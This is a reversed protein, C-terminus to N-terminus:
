IKPLKLNSNLLSRIPLFVTSVIFLDLHGEIERVKARKLGLIVNRESQIMKRLLAFFSLWDPKHDQLVWSSWRFISIYKLDWIWLPLDQKSRWFLTFMCLSMQIYPGIKIQRKKFGEMLLKLLLWLIRQAHLPQNPLSSRLTNTNLVFFYILLSDM